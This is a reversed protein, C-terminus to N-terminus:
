GAHALILLVILVAAVHPAFFPSAIAAVGVVLAIIPKRPRAGRALEILGLAIAAAGPLIAGLAQPTVSPISFFGDPLDDRIATYIIGCWVGLIGLLIGVPALSRGPRAPPELTQDLEM